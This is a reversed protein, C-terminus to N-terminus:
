WAKPDIGRAAFEQRKASIFAGLAQTEYAGSAFYDLVSFYEFPELYGPLRFIEAQQFSTVSPDAANFVMTTPTTGAGWKRALQAQNMKTGDFGTVPDEGRLDIQIVLFNDTIVKVLEPNSFNNEHLLDCYYCGTQEVLVIMNKGTAAATLLDLRVDGSSEHFWSQTHLGDPGTEVQAGALTAHTLFFAAVLGTFVYRIMPDDM